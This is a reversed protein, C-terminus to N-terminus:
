FDKQKSDIMITVPGDNILAIDMHAGFKGTAVKKNIRQELSLIFKEYIPISIEPKASKIYSPRNGKKTNAYLTFQSVVCIDGNVDELSLNMVGKADNFIRLQVIKKVLYDIDEQNDDANIGLLVLLGADIKGIIEDAVTVSCQTVKQILARM